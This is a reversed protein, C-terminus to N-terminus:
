QGAADEGDSPTPPIEIPAENITGLSQRPLALEVARQAARDAVASADMGSGFRDNGFAVVALALVGVALASSIGTVIVTSKLGEFASLRVAIKAMEIRLDDAIHNMDMRLEAFKADTRAESAAIEAELERPTVPDSIPNEMGHPLTLSSPSGPADFGVQKLTSDDESKELGKTELPNVISDPVPTPKQKHGRAPKDRAGGTAELKNPDRELKSHDRAFKEFRRQSM